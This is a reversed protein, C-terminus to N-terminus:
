KEEIDSKMLEQIAKELLVENRLVMKEIKGSVFSVVLQISSLQIMKLMAEKMVNM